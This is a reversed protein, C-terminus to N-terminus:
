SQQSNPSAAQVWAGFQELRAEIEAQTICNKSASQRHQRSGGSSNQLRRHAGLPGAPGVTDVTGCCQLEDGVESRGLSKPLQYPDTRGLVCMGLNDAIDIPDATNPLSTAPSVSFHPLTTLNAPMLISQSVTSIGYIGNPSDTM